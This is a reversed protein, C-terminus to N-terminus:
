SSSDCNHANFKVMSDDMRAVLSRGCSKKHFNEPKGSWSGKSREQRHLHIILNSQIEVVGVALNRCLMVSKQHAFHLKVFNELADSLAPKREPCIGMMMSRVLDIGIVSPASSVKIVRTSM